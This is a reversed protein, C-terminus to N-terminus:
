GSKVKEIDDNFLGMASNCKSCLIGRIKGTKHCHDVCPYKGNRKSNDFEVNCIPCRGGTKDLLLNYENPLIGYKYLRQNESSSLKNNQYYTQFYEERGKNKAIIKEKNAKYYSKYYDSHKKRVQEKNAEYYKKGHESKKKKVEPNNKRSEYYEKNYKSM